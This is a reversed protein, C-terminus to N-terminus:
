QVFCRLSRWLHSFSFFSLQRSLSFILSCSLFLCTPGDLPIQSSFCLSRAFAFAFFLSARNGCISCPWPSRARPAFLLLHHIFCCILIVCSLIFIRRGNRRSWLHM